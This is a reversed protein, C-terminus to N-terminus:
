AQVLRRDGDPVANSALSLNSLNASSSQPSLQSAYAFFGCKLEQDDVNCCCFKGRASNAAFPQMRGLVLGCEFRGGRQADVPM